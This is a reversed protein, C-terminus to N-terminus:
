VSGDRIWVGLMRERELDLGIVYYERKDKGTEVKYVKVNGDDVENAVARVVDASAVDTNVEEARSPGSPHVVAKVLDEFKRADPLSAVAQHTDKTSDLDLPFAIAECGAPLSSSLASPIEDRSSSQKPPVPGNPSINLPQEGTARNAAEVTPNGSMTM